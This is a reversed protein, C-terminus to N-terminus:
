SSRSAMSKPRRRLHSSPLLTTRLTRAPPLTPWSSLESIMVETHRGQGSLPFAVDGRDSTPLITASVASDVFRHMRPFGFRSFRSIGEAGRSGSPTRPREAFRESPLASIFASPFDSSKMNSVVRAFLVAVAAVSDTSPLFDGFPLIEM